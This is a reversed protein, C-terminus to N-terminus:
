SHSLHHPVFFERDWDVRAELLDVAIRRLEFLRLESEVAQLGLKLLNETV